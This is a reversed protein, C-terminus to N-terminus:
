VRASKSVCTSCADTACNPSCGLWYEVGENGDGLRFGPDTHVKGVVRLAGTRCVPERRLMLMVPVEEKQENM